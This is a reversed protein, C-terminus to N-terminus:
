KGEGEQVVEAEVVEGKKEQKEAKRRAYWDHAYVCGAAIAGASLLVAPPVALAAFLATVAGAAAAVEPKKIEESIKM